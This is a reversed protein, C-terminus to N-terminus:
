ATLVYTLLYTARIAHFTEVTARPRSCTRRWQVYSLMRHCSHHKYHLRCVTGPPPRDVTNYMELIASM